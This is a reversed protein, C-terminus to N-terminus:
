LSFFGFSVLREPYELVRTSSYEIESGIIASVIKMRLCYHLTSRRRSEEPTSRHRDYSRPQHHHHRSRLRAHGAEVRRRRTYVRRGPKSVRKLELTKGPVLTVEIEQKPDEGLVKVDEIWGEKKLLECLNQKMRSWPARTTSRRAGQANRIRTLLDGIPDNVYTM